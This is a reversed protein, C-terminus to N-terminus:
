VFESFYKVLYKECANKIQQVQLDTFFGRHDQMVKCDGIFSQYPSSASRQISEERNVNKFDPNMEIGLYECVGQLSDETEMKLQEYTIFRKRNGKLNEYYSIFNKWDECFDTICQPTIKFNELKNWSRLTDYPNRILILLTHKDGNFVKQRGVESNLRFQQPYHTKFAITNTKMKKADVSTLGMDFVNTRHSTGICYNTNKDILFRLYSSGSRPYSCLLKSM